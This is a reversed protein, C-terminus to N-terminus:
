LGSQQAKLRRTEKVIFGIALCFALLDSLFQSYWVGMVGLVSSLLFMLPIVVVYRSIGIIISIRVKEVSQYYCSIFYATMGLSTMCTFLRIARAGTVILEADGGAFLRIIVPAFIVVPLSVAILVLLHIRIGSRLLELLRGPKGAGYNFSAIPQLGNAMTQSFIMVTYAIYSNIIGFAALELDSGYRGLLHNIVLTSIFIAAQFGLYPLAIKFSAAVLTFDIKLDSLRIKFITNKNYLFYLIALFSLGLTCGYYIGAGLIGIKLVMVGYYLIALATMSAAGMAFSAIGPKEDVRLVSGLIQGLVCFPLGLMFAKIFIVCEHVLEAPAGLFAAVTGANFFVLGSFVIMVIAMFWFVTSFTKRAGEEDGDGLKIAALSSIGIGLGTGLALNLTEIPMVISITALGSRGLANGIIIGEAIVMVAQALMGWFTVVSYHIFLSKINRTGMEREEESYELTGAVTVAEEAYSM